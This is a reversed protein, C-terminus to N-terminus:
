SDMDMTEFMRIEDANTMVGTLRLHTVLEYRLDELTLTEQDVLICDDIDFDNSAAEAGFEASVIDLQTIRDDDVSKYALRDRIEQAMISVVECNVAYFKSEPEDYNLTTAVTTM